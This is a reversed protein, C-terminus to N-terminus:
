SAEKVAEADAAIGKSDVLMYGYSRVKRLTLNLYGIKSNISFVNGKLLDLPTEGRDAEKPWILAVLTNDPIPEPVRKAIESFINFRVVSLSIVPEFGSRRVERTTENIELGLAARASLADMAVAAAAISRRQCGCNPSNWGKCHIDPCYGLLKFIKYALSEDNM